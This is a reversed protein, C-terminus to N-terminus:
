ASFRARREARRARMMSPTIVVRARREAKPRELYERASMGRERGQQHRSLDHRPERIHRRGNRPSIGAKLM